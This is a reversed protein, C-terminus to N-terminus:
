EDRYTELKGVIPSVRPDPSHDVWKVMFFGPKVWEEWTNPPPASTETNKFKLCGTFTGAPVTVTENTEIMRVETGNTWTTGIPDDRWGLYESGLAALIYVANDTSRGFFMADEM